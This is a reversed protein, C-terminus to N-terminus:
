DPTTTAFTPRQQRGAPPPGPILAPVLVLLCAVSLRMTDKSVVFSMLAADIEECARFAASPVIKIFSGTLEWEDHPGASRLGSV